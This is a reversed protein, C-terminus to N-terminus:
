FPDGREEVVNEGLTRYVDQLPDKGRRPPPAPDCSHGLVGPREFWAPATRPNSSTTTQEFRETGPPVATGWRAEPGM